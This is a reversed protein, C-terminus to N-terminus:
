VRGPEPGRARPRQPSQIWESWSGVYLRSGTLGAHEMALLNHCATVGSGCSHVTVPKVLPEFAERLQERPLFCGDAGLNDTLPRSISTPIHGGEPDVTEGDGAYRKASRADLVAADEDNLLREVGETDIWMDDNVAAEFDGSRGVAREGAQLPKHESQWRTLGGDLVAVSEHGLWRLVWWMRGAVTGSRDDYVVAQSNKNVGCSRLKEAVAEPDPLPHRGTGAYPPSSLDRDLSIYHAGPIHNGLYDSYGVADPAARMDFVVWDDDNVHRALTDTSVLTRYASM